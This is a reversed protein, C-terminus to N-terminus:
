DLITFNFAVSVRLDDDACESVQHMLVSPFLLLKNKKVPISLIQNDNKFELPKSNNTTVPYYVGSFDSFHDPIGVHSHWRHSTNKGSVIFWFEYVRFKSTHSKLIDIANLKNEVADILESFIEFKDSTDRYYYPSQWGNKVLNIPNSTGEVLNLCKTKIVDPDIISSLDIEYIPLSVPQVVHYSPFKDLKNKLKNIFSM